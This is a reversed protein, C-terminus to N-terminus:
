HCCTHPASTAVHVIAVGELSRVSMPYEHLTVNRAQLARKMPTEGQVDEFAKVQFDFASQSPSRRANPSLAEMLQLWMKKQGDITGAMSACYCVPIPPPTARKLRTSRRQSGPLNVLAMPRRDADQLEYRWVRQASRQPVVVEIHLVTSGGPVARHDWTKLTLEFFYSGPELHAVVISSTSDAYRLGGSPAKEGIMLLYGDRSVRFDSRTSFSVTLERLTPADPPVQWSSHNTPSSIVLMPETHAQRSADNLSAIDFHNHSTRPATYGTQLMHPLYVRGVAATASASVGVDSAAVPAIEHPWRLLLLLALLLLAMPLPM